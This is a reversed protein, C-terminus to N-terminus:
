SRGATFVISRRLVGSSPQNGAVHLRGKEAEILADIAVGALAGGVAGQAPNAPNLAIGIQLPDATQQPLAVSQSADRRRPTEGLVRYWKVESTPNTPVYLGCSLEFLKGLLGKQDAASVSIAESAYCAGPGKFYTGHEDRYEAFYTGKSLTYRMEIPRLPAVRETWQVDAALVIQTQETAKHLSTPAVGACSSLLFASVLTVTCGLVTSQSSVSTPMSVNESFYV